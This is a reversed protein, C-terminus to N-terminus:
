ATKLILEPALMALDLSGKILKDGFSLEPYNAAQNTSFFEDIKEHGNAIIENWSTHLMQPLVTLAGTLPALAGLAGETKEHIANPISALNSVSSFLEHVILAQAQV